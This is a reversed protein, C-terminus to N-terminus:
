NITRILSKGNSDTHKIYFKRNHNTGAMYKQAPSGNQFRIRRRGSDMNQHFSHKNVDFCPYKDKGKQIFSDASVGEVDTSFDEINEKDVESNGDNQVLDSITEGDTFEGM